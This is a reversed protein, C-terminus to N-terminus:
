EFSMRHIPFSGQYMTIGGVIGPRWFLLANANAMGFGIVDVEVIRRQFARWIEDAAESSTERTAAQILDDAGTYRHVNTGPITSSDAYAAFQYANARNINLAILDYN